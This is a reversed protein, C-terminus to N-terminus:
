GKHLNVIQNLEGNQKELEDVEEGSLKSFDFNKNLSISLGILTRFLKKYVQLLNTIEEPSMKNFAENRKDLNMGKSYNMEYNMEYKM